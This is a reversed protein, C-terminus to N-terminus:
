NREQGCLQEMGKINLRESLLGNEVLMPARIALKDM